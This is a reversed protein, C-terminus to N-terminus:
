PTQNIHILATGIFKNTKPRSTSSSYYISTCQEVSIEEGKSHNLIIYDFVILGISSLFLLM